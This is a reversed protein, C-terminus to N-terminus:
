GILGRAVAQGYTCNNERCIRTVASWDTKRIKEKKKKPKQMQEQLRQAQLKTHYAKGCEPTCYIRTARDKLFEKGCHACIAKEEPKKRKDKEHQKRCDVCCYKQTGSDKAYRRGCQECKGIEKYVYKAM